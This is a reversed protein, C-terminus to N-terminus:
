FYQLRFGERCKRKRRRSSSQMWQFQHESSSSRVLWSKFLNWEMEVGVTEVAASGLLLWPTFLKAWSIFSGIFAVMALVMTGAGTVSIVVIPEDIFATSAALYMGVIFLILGSWQSPVVVVLLLSLMLVYSSSSPGFRAYGM